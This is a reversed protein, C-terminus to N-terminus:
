LKIDRHLSTHINYANNYIMGNYAARAMTRTYYWVGTILGVVALTSTVGIVVNVTTSDNDNNTSASSVQTTTRM